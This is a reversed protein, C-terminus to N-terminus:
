QTRMIQYYTTSAYGRTTPDSSVGTGNYVTLTIFNATTSAAAATIIFGGYQGAILPTSTGVIATVIDGSAVGAVACDYVSTSTAIQTVHAGIWACSGAKIDAINTPSNQPLGITIGHPLRTGPTAAGLNSASQNGGVLGFVALILALIVGGVTINQKSFM